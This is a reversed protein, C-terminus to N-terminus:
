WAQDSVSLTAPNLKGSKAAFYEVLFSVRFVLPKCLLPKWTLDLEVEPEVAQCHHVILACALEYEKAFYEATCLKNAIWSAQEFNATSPLDLRSYKEAALKAASTQRLIPELAEDKLLTLDRDFNECVKGIWVIADKEKGLRARETGEINGAGRIIRMDCADKVLRASNLVSIVADAYYSLKTSKVGGSTCICIGEYCDNGKRLFCTGNSTLHPNYSLGLGQLQNSFARHYKLYSLKAGLSESILCTLPNVSHGNYIPNCVTDGFLEIRSFKVM